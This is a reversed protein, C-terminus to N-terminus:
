NQNHQITFDPLNEKEAYAKLAKMRLCEFETPTKDAVLERYPNSTSEIM